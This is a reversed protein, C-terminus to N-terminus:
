AAAKIRAITEHGFRKEYEANAGTLAAAFAARDISTQITMGSTRLAEIGDAQAQAAFVRSANGGVRAAEQFVIKDEATLDDFADPSMIFVAPDYAHGSLTLFTQVQDYKAARITAIPNEEGDFTGARLAEFLLPFALTGAEAGLANFATLLVDSQPVRMKLGQLDAPTVIPRKANTIHRLGNEGWALMVMDKAAFLPRFSEGVPGDLVAHAHQPTDFLFPMNLMGVDPLVSPLGVGTCFALDISGLQVGKALEVDGGLTADPFQQITIRGDTRKAVEQAFTTAGADLQSQVPLIYGIRLTRTAGRAPRPRAALIGAGLGAGQLLLHRRGLM